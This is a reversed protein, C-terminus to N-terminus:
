GVSDLLALPGLLDAFLETAILGEAAGIDPAFYRDEAYHGVRARVAAHVRELAPSTALPRHFDIGQSAALLEIAVIRRVNVAVDGLKRAAFTAM